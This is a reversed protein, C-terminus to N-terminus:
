QRPELGRLLASWLPRDSSSTDTQLESCSRARPGGGHSDLAASRHHPEAGVRALPGSARAGTVGPRWSRCGVQMGGQQM